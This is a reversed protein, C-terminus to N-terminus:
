ETDTVSSAAGTTKLIETVERKKAEVKDSSMGSYMLGNALEEVLGAIAMLGMNDLVLDIFEDQTMAGEKTASKYAVYLLQLQGDIDMHAISELASKLSKAGTIDKLSYVVRLTDAFEINKGGIVQQLM